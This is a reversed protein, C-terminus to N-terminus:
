SLRMLTASLDPSFVSGPTIGNLRRKTGGGNKQAMSQNANQKTGGGVEYPSDQLAKVIVIAM